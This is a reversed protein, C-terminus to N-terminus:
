EDQSVEEKMKQGNGGKERIIAEELSDWDGDEIYATFEETLFKLTQLDQATMEEIELINAVAKVSTPRAINGESESPPSRPTSSSSSSSGSEKVQISDPDEVERRLDGKYEKHTWPITVMDGEEVDPPSGWGNFWKSENDEQDKIQLGFREGGNSLNDFHKINQVKGTTKETM